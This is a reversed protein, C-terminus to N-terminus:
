RRKQQKSRYMQPNEKVRVNIRGYNGGTEIQEFNVARWHNKKGWHLRRFFKRGEAVPM